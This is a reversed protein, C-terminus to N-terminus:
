QCIVCSLFCKDADEGIGSVDEVQDLVDAADNAYFFCCVVELGADVTEGDEIDVIAEAIDITAEVKDLVDAADNADKIAEAAKKLFRSLQDKEVGVEVTEGGDIDGIAEAIDISAEAIEKTSELVDDADNVKTTDEPQKEEGDEKQEGKKKHSALAIVFGFVVFFLLGIIPAFQGGM